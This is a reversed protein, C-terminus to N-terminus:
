MINYANINRLNNYLVTFIQHFFECYISCFKAHNSLIAYSHLMSQANCSIAVLMSYSNELL